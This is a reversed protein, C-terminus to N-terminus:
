GDANGEQARLAARGEPTICYGAGAPMGEDNWLGRWYEAYGKRALCRVIRRVETKEIGLAIAIPKFHMCMEGHPTTWDDLEQLVKKHHPRM